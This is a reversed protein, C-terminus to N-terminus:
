EAIVDTINVTVRWWNQYNEETVVLDMRLENEGPVDTWNENDKSTQWQLTYVANDYGNLVAYFSITDGFYLAGSGLDIYVKITRNPDLQDALDYMVTSGAPVWQTPIPDGNEDLILNGNADRKYKVPIDDTDTLEPIPDGKEDLILLGNSDKKFSVGTQKEPQETEEPQDSPQPEETELPEETEEPKEDGDTEETPDGIEIDGQEEPGNTVSPEETTEPAETVVPQESDKETPVPTVEPASTEDPDEETPTNTVQEENIEPLHFAPSPYDVALAGSIFVMGVILIVMVFWQKKMKIKM